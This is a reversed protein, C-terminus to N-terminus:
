YTGSEEWVRIENIGAGVTPIPKWDDPAKGQQVKFLQHGATEPMM